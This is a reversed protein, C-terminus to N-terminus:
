PLYCPLKCSVSIDKVLRKFGLCSKMIIVLMIITIEVASERGIASLFVLLIYWYYDSILFTREIHKTAKCTPNTHKKRQGGVVSM